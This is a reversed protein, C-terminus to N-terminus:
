RAVSAIFQSAENLLADFEAKGRSREVSLGSIRAEQESVKNQWTQVDRSLQLEKESLPARLAAMDLAQVDDIVKFLQDRIGVLVASPLEVVDEVREVDLYEGVLTNQLFEDMAKSLSSWTSADLSDPPLLQQLEELQSMAASVSEQLKQCNEFESTGYVSIIQDMALNNVSSKGILDELQSLDRSATTFEKVLAGTMDMLEGRVANAKQLNTASQTLQDRQKAHVALEPSRKLGELASESSVLDRGRAADFQQHVENLYNRWEGGPSLLRVLQQAQQPNLQDKLKTALATAGRIHDGVEKMRQTASTQNLTQIGSLLKTLEANPPVSKAAEVQRASVVVPQLGENESQNLTRAQAITAELQSWTEQEADGLGYEAIETLTAACDQALNGLRADIRNLQSKLDQIHDNLPQAGRADVLTSSSLRQRTEQADRIQATLSQSDDQIKLLTQESRSQAHSLELLYRSGISRMTITLREPHAAISLRIDAYENLHEDLLDLNQDLGSLAQEYSEPKQEDPIERGAELLRQRADGLTAKFDGLMALHDDITALAHVVPPHITNLFAEDDRLGLERNEIQSQLKTYWKDHHELAENTDLNPEIWNTRLSGDSLLDGTADIANKLVLARMMQKADVNDAMLNTSDRGVSNPARFDEVAANVGWNSDDFISEEVQNSQSLSAASDSVQRQITSRVNQLGSERVGQGDPYGSVHPGNKVTSRLLSSRLNQPSSAEIKAIHEMLGNKEDQDHPFAESQPRADVHAPQQPVEQVTARPSSLRVSQLLANADGMGQSQNLHLTLDVMLSNINKIGENKQLVSQVNAMFEQKNAMGESAKDFLAVVAERTKTNRDQSLSTSFFWREKRVFKLDQSTNTTNVIKLTGNSSNSGLKNNLTVLTQLADERSATKVRDTLGNSNAINGGKVNAITTGSM